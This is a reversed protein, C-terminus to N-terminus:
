IGGQGREEGGGGPSFRSAWLARGRDNMAEHYEIWKREARLYQIALQHSVIREDIRAKRAALRQATMQPTVQSLEGGLMKVAGVFDVHYM